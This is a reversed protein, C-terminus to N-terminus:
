RLDSDDLKTFQGQAIKGAQLANKLVTAQNAPSNVRLSIKVVGANPAGERFVLAGFGEDCTIVIAGARTANALIARDPAAPPAVEVEHGLARLERAISPSINQNLIFKV